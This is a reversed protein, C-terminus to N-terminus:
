EFGRVVRIYTKKRIREKRLAVLFVPACQAQTRTQGAYYPDVLEMLLLQVWLKKGNHTHTQTPTDRQTRRDMNMSRCFWANVHAM